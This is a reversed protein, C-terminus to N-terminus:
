EALRRFFHKASSISENAVSEDIISADIRYDAENRAQRMQRLTYALIKLKGASVREHPIGNQGRMYKILNSHHDTRCKPINEFVETARHYMAYYARSIANRCGAEGDFSLCHESSALFDASEITM